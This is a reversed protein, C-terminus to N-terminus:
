LYKVSNRSGLFTNEGLITLKNSSLDRNTFVFVKGVLLKLYMGTKESMMDQM